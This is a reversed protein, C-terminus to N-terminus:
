GSTVSATGSAAGVTVALRQVDNWIEAHLDDIGRSGDLVVVREPEAEALRLYGQRVRTFFDDGAAEIRDPARRRRDAATGPPVDLVYTRHPVLGGTAFRHFGALWDPEALGRGAGQYATTSDFFRDCLVPRGAELAPRIATEVLQARAAAFLLLEARPAVDGNPELLLARIRESLPTGGPERVLVPDRGAGRLREYLRRVQTSKGSGDLGEFTLLLPPFPPPM